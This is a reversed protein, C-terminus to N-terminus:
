SSREANENSPRRSFVYGFRAVRLIYGNILQQLDTRLLLALWPMQQGMGLLLIPTPLVPPSISM